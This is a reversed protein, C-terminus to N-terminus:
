TSQKLIVSTGAQLVVRVSERFRELEEDTADEIGREYGKSKAYKTLAEVGADVAEDTIKVRAISASM